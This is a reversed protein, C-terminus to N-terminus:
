VRFRLSVLGKFGLGWIKIRNRIKVLNMYRFGLVCVKILNSLYAWVALTLDALAVAAM